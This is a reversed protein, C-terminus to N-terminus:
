GARRNLWRRLQNTETASLARNIIVLGCHDTSDTYTTTITQATLITAEGQPVSRGVTCAAGMDSPFTIVLSDDVGDYDVKGGAALAPRSDATAQVAHSGPIERVSVNAITKASGSQNQIYVNTDGSCVGIWRGVSSTMALSTGSGLYFALTGGAVTATVEYTKGLTLCDLIVSSVTGDTTLTTGDLTWGAQKTATSDSWVTANRALGYRKDLIRGLPSSVAGATVGTSEQYISSWDSQDIWAGGDESRFLRSPTFPSLLIARLAPTM